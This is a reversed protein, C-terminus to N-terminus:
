KWQSTEKIGISRRHDRGGRRKTLRGAEVLADIRQKDWLRPYYKQAMEYVSM